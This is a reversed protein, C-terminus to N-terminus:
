QTSCNANSISNYDRVNWASEGMRRMVPISSFMSTCIRRCLSHHSSSLFLFLKSFERETAFVILNARELSHYVSCSGCVCAHWDRHNTAMVLEMPSFFNTNNREYWVRYSIHCAPMRVCVCECDCERNAAFCFNWRDGIKRVRKWNFRMSKQVESTTFKGIACTEICWISKLQGCHSFANWSVSSKPVNGRMTVWKSAKENAIRMRQKPAM